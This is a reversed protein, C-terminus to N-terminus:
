EKEAWSDCVQTGADVPVRKDEDVGVNTVEEGVEKMVEHVLAAAAAAHEEPVTALIEDHVLGVIELGPVEHRREYVAVAIAKMVDAAGGQIPTNLAQRSNELNLRRRGLKTYSDRRGREFRAIANKRWRAVGPYAEFFPKWFKEEVEAETYNKQFVERAKQAFGKLGQGYLLGFVLSKALKRQEPTVDQRPVGLVNAAVARHIDEGAIFEQRLNEDGSLAALVRVEIQSLDSVILKHGVPAVFARKLAKPIGQLPPNECAMRGTDAEVQKWKAHVRGNHAKTERFRRAVDGVKRLARLADALPNGGHEALTQKNTSKLNLGASRLAWLAQPHSNWNILENREEPVNKNKTNAEVFKEPLPAVVLADLKALQQAIGAESECVCAAFV